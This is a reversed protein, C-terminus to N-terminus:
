GCQSLSARFTDATATAMFCLATCYHSSSVATGIHDDICNVGGAGFTASTMDVTMYQVRPDSEKLSDSCASDVCLRLERFWLSFSPSGWLTVVTTYAAPVYCADFDLHDLYHYPAIHRTSWHFTGVVCSHTRPWYTEHRLCKGWANSCIMNWSMQLQSEDLGCFISGDIDWRVVSTGADGHKDVPDHYIESIGQYLWYESVYCVDSPSITYDVTLTLRDVIGLTGPSVVSGSADKLQYSATASISVPPPPPPTNGM